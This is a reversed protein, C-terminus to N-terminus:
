ANSLQFSAPRLKKFGLRDYNHFRKHEISERELRAIDVRYSLEWPPVGEADLGRRATCLLRLFLKSKLYVLQASRFPTRRHYWHHDLYALSQGQARAAKIWSGYNLRSLEPHHEVIVDCRAVFKEGLQRLQRALLTDEGNGLGGGGLEEDFAGVREWASRAIAVNVGAFESPNNALHETSALFARHYRTMWSRCLNPALRSGGVVVTGEGRIIPLCMEVLWNRPVRVDDDTFLLIDGTAYAIGANMAASKNARSTHSYNLSFGQSEADPYLDTLDSKSGNEIIIIKVSVDAPIQAAFISRLTARLSDGRAHTAIIIDVNSM